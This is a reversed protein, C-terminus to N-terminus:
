ATKHGMENSLKLVDISLDSDVPEPLGLAAMHFLASFLRDSGVSLNCLLMTAKVRRRSIKVEAGRTFSRNNNIKQLTLLAMVIAWSCFKRLGKEKTPILLTYTLAKRLHGHAIAIMEGLAQTFEISNRGERWDHLDAGHRLFLDRPLWCIDRQSDDWIDKLINTMQLGQGFPLSLKMMAKRNHAITSSYDCYLHTLMEGVVGAVHYCYCNFAKLDPLGYKPVNAQFYAMGGAMIDVNESIISQQRPTFGRTIRIVKEINGILDKETPLTKQSLLAPLLRAFEVPSKAGQVIEIFEKSFVRKQEISLDPDDEITDAIRCLLYANGVINRLKQPLQPITLAFTRSVGQLIFEQYDEDAMTAAHASDIPSM